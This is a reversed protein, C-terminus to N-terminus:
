NAAAKVEVAPAEEWGGGLAKFLSVQADARGARAEALAARAVARDRQAILLLLFSDTGARYRVETLHAARESATAANALAEEHEVAGGLRALAQETEQLARLVTGDFVALSGNATAQAEHVRARAGSNFPFNWSILPGVSYGFSQRKGFDGVKPAGLNV